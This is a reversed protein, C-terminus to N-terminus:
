HGDDDFPDLVTEPRRDAVTTGRYVRLASRYEANERYLIVYGLMATLQWRDGTAEAIQRFLEDATIVREPMVISVGDFESVYHDYRFVYPLTAKAEKLIRNLPQPGCPLPGIWYDLDIPHLADFHNRRLVTRDRHRGPDKNGFGNMNWAPLREASRRLDIFRGADAESHLYRFCVSNSSIFQRGSLKMLHMSLRSPLNQDAAGVYVVEESEGQQVSLQYIGPLNQLTSVQDGRLPISPRERLLRMVQRNIEAFEFRLTDDAVSLAYRTVAEGPQTHNAVNRSFPFRLINGNGNQNPRPLGKSRLRRVLEEYIEGLELLEDADSVGRRVVDIFTDTFSTRLQEDPTAVPTHAVADSATLVYAGSIDAADRLSLGTASLATIARGSYCCDLIVIKSKAPSRRVADRLYRYELGTLDPHAPVTRSVTLCLEASDSLMGHGVFYVLLTDSTERAIERLYQALDSGSAPDRIPVVRDEPWGCLDPDTLLDYMDRLSNAASPVDPMEIDDYRSVGILVARSEALDPM